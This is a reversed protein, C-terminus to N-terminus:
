LSIRLLVDNKRKIEREAKILSITVEWAKSVSRWLFIRKIFNIM